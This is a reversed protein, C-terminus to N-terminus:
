KWDRILLDFSKVTASKASSVSPFQVKLYMERFIYKIDKIKLLAVKATDPTYSNVVSTVPENADGVTVTITDNSMLRGYILRLQKRQEPKKLDILRTKFYSTLNFDYTSEDHNIVIFGYQDYIHLKNDFTRFAGRPSVGTLNRLYFSNDSFDYAIIIGNLCLWLEGDDSNYAFFSDESVYQRYLERMRANELWPEVQVGAFLYVDDNDMFYLIDNIVIYGKTAYLGHKKGSKDHYYSAGSLQGQSISHRKLVVFRNDREILGLNQDIDGVPTQIVSIAPFSDYQYLPSYRITDQEDEESSLCFARSNIVQHHTYNPSNEITGRPIETFDYFNGAMATLDVGIYTDLGVDADYIWRREIKITCDALYQSTGGSTLTSLSDAVQFYRGGGGTLDIATITTKVTGWRNSIEIEAGLFLYGDEPVMYDNHGAADHSLEIETPATSDWYLNGRSYIYKGIPEKINIIETVEFVAQSEIYPDMEGQLTNIQALCLAVGTIRENIFTTALNRGNIRVQVQCSNENLSLIANNVDLSLVSGTILNDVDAMLQYQSDDYVYFYKAVLTVHRTPPSPLAADFLMTASVVQLNQKQLKSKKLYWGAIALRPSDELINYEDVYIECGNFPVITIYITQTADSKFSFPVKVWGTTAKTLEGIQNGNVSTGIKITFRQTLQGSTKYVYLTIHYYNDKTVNHAQYAYGNPVAGLAPTFASILLMSYSGKYFHSTSRSRVCGAGGSTFDDEDGVSEFDNDYFAAPSTYILNSKIYGYWLPVSAGTIRVIGNHYFFRLTDDAAITVGSPLTLASPTEAEYGTKPSNSIDYDVRYLITGEQYLIFRDGSLDDSIEIGSKINTGSYDLAGNIPGKPIEWEGKKVHKLNVVEEHFYQLDNETIDSLMGAPRIPIKLRRM